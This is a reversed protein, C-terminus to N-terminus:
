LSFIIEDTRRDRVELADNLNFEMASGQEFLNRKEESINVFDIVTAICAGDEFAYFQSLDYTEGDFFSIRFVEEQRSM